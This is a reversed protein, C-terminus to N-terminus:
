FSLKRVGEIQPSFEGRFHGKLVPHRLFKALGQM